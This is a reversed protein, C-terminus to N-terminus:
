TIVRSLVLNRCHFSLSISHDNNIIKCLMEKDFSMIYNSFDSCKKAKQMLM